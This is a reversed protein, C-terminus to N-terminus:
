YSVSFVRFGWRGADERERMKRLLLVSTDTLLCLYRCLSVNVFVVLWGRFGMTKWWGAEREDEEAKEAVLGLSCIGFFWSLISKTAFLFWIFIVWKVGVNLKGDM